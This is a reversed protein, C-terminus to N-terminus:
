EGSALPLKAYVISPMFTNAMAVSAVLAMAYGPYIVAIGEPDVGLPGASFGVATIFEQGLGLWLVQTMAAALTNAQSYRVQTELSLDKLNWPAIDTFGSYFGTAFVMDATVKAFALGFGSSAAIATASPAVNVKCIVLKFKNTSPNWLTPANTTGSFIPIALATTSGAQYLLGRRHWESYKPGFESVGLAGYNDGRPTYPLDDQYPGLVGSRINLEM